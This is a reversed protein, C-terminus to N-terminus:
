GSLPVKVTRAHMPVHITIRQVGQHVWIVPWCNHKSLSSRHHSTTYSPDPAACAMSCAARQTLNCPRESSLMPGAHPGQHRSNPADAHADVKTGFPYSRGTIRVTLYAISARCLAQQVQKRDTIECQLRIRMTWSWGITVALYGVNPLAQRAIIVEQKVAYMCTDHLRGRLLYSFSLLAVDLSGLFTLM